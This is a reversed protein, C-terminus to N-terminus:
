QEIRSKILKAIFESKSLPKQCAAKNRSIDPGFYVKGSKIIIERDGVEAINPPLNNASPVGIGEAKKKQAERRKNEQDVLNPDSQSAKSTDIYQQRTSDAVSDQVGSPAVQERMDDLSPILLTDEPGVSFPNSIANYKLILDWYESTSYGARSILDPRMALQETVNIVGEIYPDYNYRISPYTLDIINENNVNVLPKIEFITLAM